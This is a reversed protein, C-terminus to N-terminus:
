HGFFMDRSFTSSVWRLLDLMQNGLSRVGSFLYSFFAALDSLEGFWHVGELAEPIVEGDEAKMLKRLHKRLGLVFGMSASVFSTNEVAAMTAAFRRAFHDGIYFCMWGHLSDSQSVKNSKPGEPLRLEGRLHHAFRHCLVRSRVSGWRWVPWVALEFTYGGARASGTDIM